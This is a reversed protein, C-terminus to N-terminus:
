GWMVWKGQTMGHYVSIPVPWVRWYGLERFAPVAVPLSVCLWAGTWGVTLTRCVVSTRVEKRLMREAVKAVMLEIAFGPVQLWFFMGVRLQMERATMETDRPEPPILGMHMFGSFGFASVVVIMYGVMARWGGDGEGEKGRLRLGEALARGPAATTIRNM